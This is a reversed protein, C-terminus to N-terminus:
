TAWSWLGIHLSLMPFSCLRGQAETEVDLISITSYDKMANFSCVCNLDEGGSGSSYRLAPLSVKVGKRWRPTQRRLFQQFSWQEKRRLADSFPAGRLPSQPSLCPSFWHTVSPSSGQPTSQQSALGAQAAEPWYHLAMGTPNERSALAANKKCM